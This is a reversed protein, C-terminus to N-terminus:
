RHLEHKEGKNYNTLLQKLIELKKEARGQRTTEAWHTRIPIRPPKDM